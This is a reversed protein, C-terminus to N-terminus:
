EPDDFPQEEGLWSLWSEFTLGSAFLRKTLDCRLTALLPFPTDGDASLVRDAVSTM